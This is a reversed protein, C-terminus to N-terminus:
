GAIVRCGCLVSNNRESDCLRNRPDAVLRIRYRGAEIGAPFTCV